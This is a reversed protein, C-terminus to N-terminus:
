SPRSLFPREMEVAVNILRSLSNLCSGSAVSDVYPPGLFIVGRKWAIALDKYLKESSFFGDIDKQLDEKFAEDLIVKGLSFDSPPAHHPYCNRECRELQSEPSGGM